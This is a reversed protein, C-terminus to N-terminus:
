DAKREVGSQASTWTRIAETLEDREECPSACLRKLRALNAEAAPLDGLMLFLEGQYELAGLHNPNLHLAREYNPASRELDGTKRYAFGLMNFVDANAPLDVALRRLIPLAAAFEEAVILEGAELFDEALKPDMDSSWHDEAPAAYALGPLAIVLVLFLAPTKM